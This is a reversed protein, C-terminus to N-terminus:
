CGNRDMCQRVCRDFDGGGYGSRRGKPKQLVFDSCGEICQQKIKKCDAESNNNNAADDNCLLTGLAAGAGAGLAVAPPVAGAECAIILPGGAVCPTAIIGGIIGGVVAGIGAGAATAACVKKTPAQSILASQCVAALGNFDFKLIPDNESYAYRNFGGALGIPDSQLYRGLTPDYTRHWNHSLGTEADAYQGPFMLNQAFAAATSIAEGFPTTIGGDWVVAGAGDTAFAPRGLHDAHLFYLQATSATTGGGADCRGQVRDIRATIRAIAANLTVVRANLTELRDTLRIIAGGITELRTELTAIRETLRAIRATNNPNVGALRAELEAKRAAVTAERATRTDLAGSVITIRETVLALRDQRALLREQLTALLDEDCTDNDNAADYIAVPTLGLWIYDRVAEGTIGDAESILRGENDYTYHILTGGDGTDPLSKAIRQESEDYTYAAVEAGNKSVLVPRGRNNNSYAYVEGSRDDSALQGSPTYTFSRLGGINSSVTELRFASDYNYTETEPNTGDNLTRMIRDGGLNYGYDLLGFGGSAQTLRSVKDYGFQQSREPRLNDNMALIDGVADYDFGIDMLTGNGSTRQLSVARYATDYAINLAHGDGFGATKLPGFAAYAINDIAKFKAM